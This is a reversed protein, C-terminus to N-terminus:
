LCCLVGSLQSSNATDTIKGGTCTFGTPRLNCEAAYLFKSCTVAIPEAAGCGAWLPISTASSSGCAITGDQARMAPVNGIFFAAPIADCANLDIGDASDCIHTGALCQADATRMITQSYLTPCAFALKAGGAFGVDYGMGTPCAKVPVPRPQSQPRTTICTRTALSCTEGDPCNGSQTPDCTFTVTSPDVNFCSLQMILALATPLLSRM